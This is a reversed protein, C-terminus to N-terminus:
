LRAEVLLGAKGGDEGREMRHTSRLPTLRGSVVPLRLRPPPKSRPRSAPRLWKLLLYLVGLCLPAVPKKGQRIKLNPPPKNM